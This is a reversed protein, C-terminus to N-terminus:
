VIPGVVSPLLRRDSATHVLNPEAILNRRRRRRRTRILFLLSCNPLDCIGCALVACHGGCGSQGFQRPRDSFRHCIFVTNADDSELCSPRCSGSSLSASRRVTRHSDSNGRTLRHASDGDFANDIESECHPSQFIPRCSRVFERLVGGISERTEHRERNGRRVFSM